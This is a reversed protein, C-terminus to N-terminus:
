GITGMIDFDPTEIDPRHVAITEPSTGPGDKDVSDGAVLFRGERQRFVANALWFLGGIRLAGLATRQITPIVVAM